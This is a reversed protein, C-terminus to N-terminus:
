CRREGIDEVIEKAHAAAPPSAAGAALAAGIQAVVHLQRQFFGEGALASLDANRRRDDAFGASAGAGLGAGLRFRTGTAAAEALNTVGLSEKRQLPGADATLAAPLHDISGAPGAASEAAGRPLARERHIDRRADLVAGADAQGALALSPHAAPRRAVEINEQ